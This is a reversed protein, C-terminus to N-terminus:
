QSCYNQVPIFLYLFDLADAGLSPAGEFGTTQFLGAGEKKLRAEVSLEMDM